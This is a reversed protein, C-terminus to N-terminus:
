QRQSRIVHPLGDAESRWYLNYRVCSTAKCIRGDVDIPEYYYADITTSSGTSSGNVGSDNALPCPSGACTATNFGTFNAGAVDPPTFSKVSTGNLVESPYGGTIQTPTFGAVSNGFIHSIENIDPYSGKAVYSPTTVMNNGQKYRSELGRSILEVASKRQADRANKQMRNVGLGALTLLIVMIVLVVLIEILTFGRQSQRM